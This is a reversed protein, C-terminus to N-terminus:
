ASAQQETHGQPLIEDIPVPKGVGYGQVFDVGMKLLRIAIAENEVFEAVTKMGMVHGVDNISKVMAADIPDDLIDKVFMGDIKLTDVDLNKLYGFSSLGSGFDDLSFGSGYEKIRRIFHNAQQLNAIASTETVEFNVRQPAVVASALLKELHGLVIDDGISQGSLNISFHTEPPFKDVHQQLWDFAHDIVWLDIRTILNYREAAPLFAGPPIIEDYEDLLRILIEYHEFRAEVDTPKIVQAYLQFRDQELAESIRPAWLMEGSRTMVKEDDTQYIHVRNRGADKAAYCAIDAYKLVETASHTMEDITTIGISVGVTFVREEWPFRFQEFLQLIESAKLRAESISCNLMLVAFEDGGLRALTDAERLHERLMKGIQRLMEDGAVHGSTDNVIKFQDLDLFCLVHQEGNRHAGRVAQELRNEFEIRNILGTLGDHRAQYHIQQSAEYAETIDQQMAVFHTMVGADNFIPAIHETSWYGSGDKKRNYMEGQWQKGAHLNYMIQMQREPEDQNPSFTQHIQGVVEDSTYGTIESFRPNVYEIHGKVDTVIVANPSFEVALSLKRLTEASNHREIEVAARVGFIRILKEALEVDEISQHSLVALVGLPQGASDDLRKGIYGEVQMDALSQDEPFVQQAAKPYVCMKERRAEGCATNKLGVTFTPLMKGDGYVAFVDLQKMHNAFLGVYAMDAQLANALQTTLEEFFSDGQKVDLAQAIRGILNDKERSQLETKLLRSRYYLLTSLTLVVVAVIIGGVVLTRWDVIGAYRLSIWQQQLRTKQTDSIQALAKDLISALEPWDKRVAYALKFSYPTNAAVQLNTFGRSQIVHTVSALNDIFYDIRGLSLDRLGDELTQYSRLRMDPFDRSLFDVTAYDKVVGIEHNAVDDLGKIFGTDDRSLIVMPFDLYPRTFNLYESRQPTEVVCPFVDVGGQKAQQLLDSWSLGTLPRTKINLLNSLLATYSAALGQYKGNEDIFEFPQWSPDVGLRISDHQQLWQQEEATLFDEPSVGAALTLGTTCTLM